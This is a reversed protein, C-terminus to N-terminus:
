SVLVQEVGVRQGGRCRGWPRGGARVSLRFRRRESCVGGERWVGMGRSLRNRPPAPGPPRDALRPRRLTRRNPKGPPRPRLSGGEADSRQLGRGAGPGPGRHVARGGARGCMTQRAAQRPRRARDLPTGRRRVAAAGLRQLGAGRADVGGGSDCGAADFYEGADCLLHERETRRQASGDRGSRARAGAGDAAHVGHEREGTEAADPPRLLLNHQM